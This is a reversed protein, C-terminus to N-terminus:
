LDRRMIIADIMSTVDDGADRKPQYYDKRRGVPVFGTSKYLAIAASNDEAVELFLHAATMEGAKAAIAGVLAAGGGKERRDPLVGLTIIEGEGGIARVLAFGTPVAVVGDDGLGLILAFAGPMALLRAFADQDWGGDGGGAKADSFCQGHLTALLAASAGDAVVVELKM